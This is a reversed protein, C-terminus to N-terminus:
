PAEGGDQQSCVAQQRPLHRLCLICIRSGRGVLWRSFGFNLCCLGLGLVVCELGSPALLVQSFGIVCGVFECALKGVAVQPGSQIFLQHATVLLGVVCIFGQLHSVFHKCEIGIGNKREDHNGTDQSLAACFCVRVQLLTM